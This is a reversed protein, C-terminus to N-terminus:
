SLVDRAWVRTWTLIWSRRVKPRYEMGGDVHGGINEGAMQMAENYAVTLHPERIYPIPPGCRPSTGHCTLDM